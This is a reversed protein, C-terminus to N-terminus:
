SSPAEALTAVSALRQRLAQNENVLDVYQSAMLQVDEVQSVPISSQRTMRVVATRLHTVQATLTGVQTVLAGIDSHLREVAQKDAKAV